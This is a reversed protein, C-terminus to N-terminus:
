HHLVAQSGPNQPIPLHAGFSRGCNKLHEVLGRLLDKNSLAHSDGILAVHRRRRSVAVNMRRDELFSFTGTSRVMSIIIAEREAGPILSAMTM